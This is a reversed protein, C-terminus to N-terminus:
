RGMGSDHKSVAQGEGRPEDGRMAALDGHWVNFDGLRALLEAGRARSLAFAETVVEDPPTKM